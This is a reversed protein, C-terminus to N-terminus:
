CGGQRRERDGRRTCWSSPSRRAPAAPAPFAAGLGARLPRLARRSALPERAAGAGAAPVAGAAALSPRPPARHIYPSPRGGSKQRKSCRRSRDGPIEARLLGPITKLFHCVLGVHPFDGAEILGFQLLRLRLLLVGQRGFLGNLLLLPTFNRLFRSSEGGGDDQLSWDHHPSPAVQLISVLSLSCQSGLCEAGMGDAQPDGLPGGGIPSGFEGSQGPINYFIIQIILSFLVCRTAFFFFFFYSSFGSAALATLFSYWRDLLPCSLRMQIITTLSSLLPLTQPDHCRNWPWGQMHIMSCLLYEM